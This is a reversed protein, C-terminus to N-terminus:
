DGLARTLAAALDERRYPKRLLDFESADEVGSTEGRPYGSTLLVALGPRALRAAHALAIGDMGIGLVVDTFLLDVQAEEALMDLAQGADRAVLIRHGLSRVFAIAINLVEPDDEVVLVTAHREADHTDPRAGAAIAPNTAVPLYLRVSTGYGLRSDITMRGGSQEVFGYVMPLGLGSGKGSEKTTVFPELVRSLIEAPMGTGTDTVTFTVYCGPPIDEPGAVPITCPEAVLALRGGRPMADRANLALNILATELETPDAQVDPLADVCTIKLEITEGLTRTLLNGLTDLMPRVAVATPRLSQRRAFALLKRTLDAGREVAHRASAISTAASDSNESEMELLQLNGSIVTLLNNFDHAIGGTLQGIADLRQAHALQVEARRRQVASAVLNAVSQLFSVAGHDFRRPAHALALLLGSPEYLGFLPVIACDGFGMQALEAQLQAFEAGALADMTMAPLDRDVFFHHMCGAASLIPALRAVAEAPIGADARVRLLKDHWDTALIAVADISLAAMVQEPIRAIADWHDPSELLLRGIQVVFNDLRSGRASQQSRQTTSIDRIAAIALPGHETAVPSLGVDVAFKEGNARVGQLEYNIGMRRVRPRRLYERFHAAHMYRLPLPLLADLPQRHLAGPAYGFLQEAQANALAIRGDEDVALMADPTIDFLARLVGFVDRQDPAGVM